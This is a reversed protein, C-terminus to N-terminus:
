SLCVHSLHIISFSFNGSTALKHCKTAFFWSITLPSTSPPWPLLSHTRMRSILPLPPAATPSLSNKRCLFFCFCFYSFSVKVLFFPFKWLLVSFPLCPLLSNRTVTGSLSLTFLFPANFASSRTPLELLSFFGCHAMEETSLHFEISRQCLSFVLCPSNLLFQQLFSQFYEQFKPPLIPIVPHHLTFQSSTM